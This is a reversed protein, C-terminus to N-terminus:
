NTARHVTGLTEMASDIGGTAATTRTDLRQGHIEELLQNPANETQHTHASIGNNIQQHGHSINTQKAFLMPPNKFKSLTELTMRSQNQARLAVRFLAEMVPASTQAAAREIMRGYITQLSTAQAMLMREAQGM